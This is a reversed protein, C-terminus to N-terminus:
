CARLLIMSYHIGFYHNLVLINKPSADSKVSIIKQLTQNDTMAKAALWTAFASSVPYEGCLHKFSAIATCNINKALTQITEDGTSHGSTGILVVDIPVHLSSEFLSLQETLTKRDPKYYTAVSDISAISDDSKQGTVVFFAAGEGNVVGNPNSKNRFIGFRRLIAHSYQTIEDVGGLLIKDMPFDQAHLLGDVLASEFSFAGHAYTQNYGQCQLLLAIQSGITNHTSQIFPTPNLAVEKNDIMRALFIGTDDLCGYGTATIIADPLDVQAERLAMFASAAGMRIIRSMRRLHKPDIWDSYQPEIASFQDGNPETVANWDESWTAQPSINGMGKIYLAM